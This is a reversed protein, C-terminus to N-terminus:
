KATRRRSSKEPQTEVIPDRNEVVPERVMIPPQETYQEAAGEVILENGLRDAVEIVSGVTLGDHGKVIIPKILKIKM